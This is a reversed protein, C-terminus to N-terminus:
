GVQFIYLVGAAACVHLLPSGLEGSVLTDEDRNRVGPVPIEAGLCIIIGQQSFEAIHILM